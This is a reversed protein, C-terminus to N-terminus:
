PLYYEYFCSEVQTSIVTRTTALLCKSKDYVSQGLCTDSRLITISSSDPTSRPAKLIMCNEEGKALGWWDSTKRLNYNNKVLKLYVYTHTLTHTHTHTHTHIIEDTTIKLCSGIDIDIYKIKNKLNWGATFVSVPFVALRLYFMFALYLIFYYLCFYESSFFHYEFTCRYFSIGKFEWRHQTDKADM